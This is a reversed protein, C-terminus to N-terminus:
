SGLKTFIVLIQLRYQQLSAILGDDFHTGALFTSTSTEEVDDDDDDNDDDNDDGDDNDNISEFDDNNEENKVPKKITMKIALWPLSTQEGRM